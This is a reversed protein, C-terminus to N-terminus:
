SNSKRKYKFFNTLISSCKDPLIDSKVEVKHNWSTELAKIKSVIAGFKIDKAGYIVTSIRSHLIAGLCMMCPELTVYLKANVLRYNGINFAADRLAVVEAHATPDITSIPKNFGRGIIKDDLVVIAGVPVEDNSEAEAALLLAQEMWYEHKKSSM